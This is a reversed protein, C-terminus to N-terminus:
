VLRRFFEELQHAGSAFSIQAVTQMSADERLVRRAIEVTETFSRGHGCWKPFALREIASDGGVCPVRCLLADGAVQGPVASRDLQFVLRHQALVRLYETYPLPAEVIASHPIRFASLAKRGARGDLNFVTIPENLERALLLAAAHNRSPVDFERTGILVGCRQSVPISFDWRPDDTPYPTPIFEALRAGSARYISVLDGTSSIAGDSGACIQEFVELRSSDSFLRAVQHAGSEKLSVAVKEGAAKLKKLAKLCAHIDRRILLLVANQDHPIAPASKYFAGGTCAAYAHYNVPPHIRDDPTGAHDDFQQPPDNGGPNLVALRFLPSSM